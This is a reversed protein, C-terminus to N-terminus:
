SYKTESLDWFRITSAHNLHRTDNLELHVNEDPEIEIIEDTTGNSDLFKKGINNQSNDPLHHDRSNEGSLFLALGLTDPENPSTWQTSTGSDGVSIEELTRQVSLVQDRIADIFQKHGHIAHERSGTEDSIAHVAREFDELQWKATEVATVLNRKHFQLPSPMRRDGHVLDLEHMLLRYLSEM